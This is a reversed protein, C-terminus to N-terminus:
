VNLLDELKRRVHAAESAEDQKRASEDFLANAKTEAAISAATAADEVQKLDAIAKTFVALVGATTKRKLINRM